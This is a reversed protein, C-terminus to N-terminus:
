GRGREDGEIRDRVGRSADISGERRNEGDEVRRIEQARVEVGKRGKGVQERVCRAEDRKDGEVSRERM